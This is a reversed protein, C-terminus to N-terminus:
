NEFTFTPSVVSKENSIQKESAIRFWKYPVISTQLHCHNYLNYAFLSILADRYIGKAIVHTKDTLFCETTVLM